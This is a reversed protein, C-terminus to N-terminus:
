NRNSSSAGGRAKWEPELGRQADSSIERHRLREEEEEEFQVEDFHHILIFFVFLCFCVFSQM